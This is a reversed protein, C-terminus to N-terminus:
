LSGKRKLMKAFDNEFFGANGIKDATKVFFCILFGLFVVNTDYKAYYLEFKGDLSTRPM